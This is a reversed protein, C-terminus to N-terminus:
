KLLVTFDDAISQISNSAQDQTDEYNSAIAIVLGSDPYILLDASGGVAGGSHSWLRNGHQDRRIFWGIGYGTSQGAATKQSTFMTDLSARKLFGPHLVAFGFRVLDEPTSLFGGSALKYSNDVSPALVFNTKDEGLQYFRTCQPPERRAEDPITNNMQLPTFVAQQMWDRFKEHAASEMAVSILNFGYSSYSFREGPKFLLPDDQFIKLGAKGSNYHRNSYLEDGRYHRIGALHGALERITIPAGKDPFDPVYKHIDGDLDIKDQEVLLMLGIATLPKSVSGIRFQTQPTVPKHNALDAFGFGESWLIKGDRGVAIAFGPAKSALNQRVESRAADIADALSAAHATAALLVIAIAFRARSFFTLTM